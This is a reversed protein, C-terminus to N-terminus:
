SKPSGLKPLQTQPSHAEYLSGDTDLQYRAVAASVDNGSLDTRSQDDPDPAAIAAGQDPSDGAVVPSISRNVSTILRPAAVGAIALWLMLSGIGIGAALGRSSAM